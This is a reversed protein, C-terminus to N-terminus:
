SNETSVNWAIRNRKRKMKEMKREGSITLVGNQLSVDIDERKLGPLEAEVVFSDKEERIDLAPLRGGLLETTRGLENLPSEFLRDLEDRLNSLRGLGLDPRRWLTLNM